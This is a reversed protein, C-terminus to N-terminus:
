AAADRYADATARATREWSFEAARRRGREARRARTDPDGGAASSASIAAAGCPRARGVPLYTAADGGVERLAPTDSALVPVGAVMAELVPLGFGEKRSPVLVARAGTASRPWGSPRSSGSGTSGTRRGRRTAAHGRLREARRASWPGAMVLRVGPEALAIAELALPANKHPEIAGAYLM